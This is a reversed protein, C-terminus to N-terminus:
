ILLTSPPSLASNQSQSSQQNSGMLWREEGPPRLLVPLWGSGFPFAQAEGYQVGLGNAWSTYGLFPPCLATTLLGPDRVKFLRSCTEEGKHPSLNSLHGPHDSM